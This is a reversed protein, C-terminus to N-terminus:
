RRSNATGNKGANLAAVPAEMAADKSLNQHQELQARLIMLSQLGTLTQVVKIDIAWEDSGRPTSRLVEGISLVDNYEIGVATSVALREGTILTLRQGAFTHVLSPIRRREGSDNAPLIELVAPDPSDPAVVLQTRPRGRDERSLYKEDHKIAAAIVSKPLIQIV